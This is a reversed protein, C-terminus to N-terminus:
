NRVQINNNVITSAGGGNRITPTDGQTTVNITIGTATNNFIAADTTGSAGYGTFLNGKSTQIAETTTTIEIGHGDSFEFNCFVIDSVDDTRIFAVGDATNANIISNRLFDAANSVLATNGDIFLNSILSTNINDLVADGMHLFTCGYFNAADINAGNAILNWRAGGAAASVVWGQAGTADDGSDTKLGASFSQTSSGGTIEFRYFGDPVLEDKFLIIQNTDSFGHTVGDNAGFRVGGSLVVSGGAGREATGWAGTTASLVIDDWTYDSGGLQGEVLIVPTTNDVYWIADVFYNDAMKPMSTLPNVVIGAGRIATTSPATGGTADPISEIDVVFQVWGGAYTDTGAVNFEIFDAPDNSIFRARVGGNAFTDLVGPALFNFWFYWITNSFDSATAGTRLVAEEVSTSTFSTGLATGGEIQVETDTAFGTGSGGGDIWNTTTNANDWLIRNDLIAM